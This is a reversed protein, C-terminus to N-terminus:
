NIIEDEIAKWIQEQKFNNLVFKRGNEGHLLRMTPDNYYNIIKNYIDIPSIEVFIGTQNELISDICGTSRSTLVPLKMSSAELVVTPFGERYSPLVFVNMLKYFSAVDIVMNTFVISEENLLYRKVKLPLKDRSDFPGVLLLRAHPIQLIVMKWAEILPIIGKDVSMRGVYGVVFDRGIKFRDLIEKPIDAINQNERSFRNTNIGNCTGKRLLLNKSSINLKLKTSLKEISPSVNVISTALAATLKEIIILLQRRIGTATEFVLGHRFYIRKPTKAFYSALMSLLAGKPSHGIVVDFREKKILKYLKFISKIDTIPKMSREIQLGFPHFGMKHAYSYLHDSPSCAVFFIMGKNKFFSFQEGIFYPLSFSVSVVHLIKM